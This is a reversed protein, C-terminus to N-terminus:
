GVRHLRLDMIERYKAMAEQPSLNQLRIEGCISQTTQKPTFEIGELWLKPNCTLLYRFSRPYKRALNRVYGALGDRGKGDEGVQQAALEHKSNLVQYM